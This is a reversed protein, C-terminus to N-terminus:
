CNTRRHSSPPSDIRTTSCDQSSCQATSKFNSVRYNKIKNVFSPIPVQAQLWQDGQDRGLSWITTPKSNGDLIAVQLHGIHRGAM